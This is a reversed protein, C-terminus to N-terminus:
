QWPAITDRPFWGGTSAPNGAPWRRACGTSWARSCGSGRRPVPPTASCGNDSVARVSGRRMAPLLEDLPATNGARALDTRVASPDLALLLSTEARGAHADGGAVARAIRTDTDPPLHPGHQEVSGVPVLLTPHAGDLEPWRM